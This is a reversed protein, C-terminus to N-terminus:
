DPAFILDEVVSVVRIGVLTDVAVPGKGPKVVQDGRQRFTIIACIFQVPSCYNDFSVMNLVPEVPLFRNLVFPSVICPSGQYSCAFIFYPWIEPFCTFSINEKLLM